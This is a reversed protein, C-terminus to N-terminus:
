YVYYLSFLIGVLAKRNEDGDSAQKLLEVIVLVPESQFLDALALNQFHSSIDALRSKVFAEIDGTAQVLLLSLTAALNTSDMVPQWAEKEQRAEAVKQIIDRKKYLVLWPVAHAQILVLLGDVSLQLLEALARSCQPRRVMDKTAVYALSKWFPEFLRRCQTKRREALKILENFAFASVVSNSSGLYELLQLLVLNLEEEEVFRGIQGWAMICTETLNAQQRESISKLLAIANQRNRAFLDDPLSARNAIPRSPNIFAMLTRGAAIRLERVSSNLSQICWRGTASTELNLFSPDDCHIALRRLAQMAAIRPRKSNLFSEMQIMDTYLDRWVVSGTNSGTPVTNRSGNDDCIHCELTEASLQGLHMSLLHDDLTCNARSILTLVQCQNQEDSHEFASRFM